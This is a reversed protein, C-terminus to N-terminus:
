LSADSECAWQVVTYRVSNDDPERVHRRICDASSEGPEAIVRM